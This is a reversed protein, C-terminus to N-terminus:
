NTPSFMSQFVQVVGYVGVSVGILNLVIYGYKRMWKPYKDKEDRSHSCQENSALAVESVESTILSQQEEETSRYLCHMHLMSPIYYVCFYCVVSGVLNMVTDLAIYPGLFCCFISLCMFTMNFSRFHIQKIEPFFYLLLRSRGVEIFCPFVTM